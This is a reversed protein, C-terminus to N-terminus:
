RGSQPGADRRKAMLVAGVMAVLLLLSAMEFPLMYTQYLANAIRETNPQLAEVRAPPLLVTNRKWYFLALEALLAGTALAAIPWQRSYPAQRVAVGVNVLMIAFLFLVMIGGIYLIIQVAALFEARLQLYLLAVSLLTVILFVASHVPNRRTIVGLASLVAIGALLYFTIQDVSM